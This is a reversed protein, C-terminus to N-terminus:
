ISGGREESDRAVACLVDNTLLGSALSVRAHPAQLISTRVEKEFVEAFCDWMKAEAETNDNALIISSPSTSLLETALLCTGRSHM